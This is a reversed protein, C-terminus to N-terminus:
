KSFPSQAGVFEVGVETGDRYIVRVDLTHSTRTQPEVVTIRLKRGAPFDQSAMGGALEIAMGGGGAVVVKGLERGSEDVAYADGPIPHREFRRRDDPSETPM